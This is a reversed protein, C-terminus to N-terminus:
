QASALYDLAAAFAARWERFAILHKDIDAAMDTFGCELALKRALELRGLLRDIEALSSDAAREETM